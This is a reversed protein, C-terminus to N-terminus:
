QFNGEEVKAEVGHLVPMRATAATLIPLRAGLSSAFATQLALVPADAPMDYSDTWVYTGMRAEVLSATIRIVGANSRVSGTLFMDAQARSAGKDKTPPALIGVTGNRTLM